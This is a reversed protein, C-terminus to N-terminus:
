AESQGEVPALYAEEKPIYAKQQTNAPFNEKNGPYDAVCYFIGMYVSGVHRYIDIASGRCITAM